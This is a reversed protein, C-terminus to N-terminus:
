SGQLATIFTTLLFSVQTLKTICKRLVRTSWPIEVKSNIEDGSIFASLPLLDGAPSNREFDLLDTPWLHAGLIRLVVPFTTTVTSLLSIYEQHLTCVHLALSETHHTISGGGQPQTPLNLRVSPMTSFFPRRLANDLCIYCHKSSFPIKLSKCAIYMFYTYKLNKIIFSM